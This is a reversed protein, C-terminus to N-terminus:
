GNFGGLIKQKLQDAIQPGRPTDNAMELYLEIDDVTNEFPSDSNQLNFWVCPDISEIFTVQGYEEDPKGMDPNLRFAKQVDEFSKVFLTM